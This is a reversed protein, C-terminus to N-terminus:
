VGGWGLGPEAEIGGAWAVAPGVNVATGSMVVNVAADAGLGGGAVVGAVPARPAGAEVEALEALVVSV